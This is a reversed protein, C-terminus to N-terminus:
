CKFVNRMNLESMLAEYPLKAVNHLPKNVLKTRM